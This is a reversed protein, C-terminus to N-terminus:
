YRGLGEGLGGGAASRGGRPFGGGLGAADAGGEAPLRLEGIEIEDDGMREGPLFLEVPRPRDRASNGLHRRARRVSAQRGARAWALHPAGNPVDMRMAM